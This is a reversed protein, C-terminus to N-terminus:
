KTGGSIENAKNNVVYWKQIFHTIRTRKLQYINGQKDSEKTVTIYGKDKLWQLRRVATCRSVKLTRCLQTLPVQFEYGYVQILTEATRVLEGHQTKYTFYKMLERANIHESRRLIYIQM